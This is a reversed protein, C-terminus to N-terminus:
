VRGVVIMVIVLLFVCVVLIAVLSEGRDDAARTAPTPTTKSRTYVTLVVSAAVFVLLIAGSQEPSIDLGFVQLLGLVAILLGKIADALVVPEAQAFSPTNDPM